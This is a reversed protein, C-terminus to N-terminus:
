RAMVATMDHIYIWGLTTEWNVEAEGVLYSRSTAQGTPEPPRHNDGRLRGGPRRRLTTTRTRSSSTGEGDIVHTYLNHPGQPPADEAGSWQPDEDDTVDVLTVTVQTPGGM